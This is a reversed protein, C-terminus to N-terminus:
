AANEKTNLEEAVKNIYGVAEPMTFCHGIYVIREGQAAREKLPHVLSGDQCPYGYTMEVDRAGLAKDEFGHLRAFGVSSLAALRGLNMPQEYEKIRTAIWTKYVGYHCHITTNQVWIEQVYRMRNLLDCIKFAAVARWMAEDHTYNSSTSNEVIITAYRQSHTIRSQKTPREWATDLQGGWVRHIDLTDGYDSRHRKRRRQTVLQSVAEDAVILQKDITAAKTQVSELLAPWGNDIQRRTEEASATGHWDRERMRSDRAKRNVLGYELKNLPTSNALLRRHEVAREELSYFWLHHEEETNLEM